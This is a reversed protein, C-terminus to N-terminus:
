KSSMVSSEGPHDGDHVDTPNMDIMPLFMVSSKGPHDGDHVDTPNMDIMPLFMVSSKGPHDGDHVDTPNMDIMPLFMVSSKGPHDGDHVFQMMGSWSPCPSGFLISSKWLIDLDAEQNQAKFSCLNTGLREEKHFHLPVRGVIAVDKYTVKVRPIPKTCQKEPTIVIIMGMGHFTNHGDLTRSNHDM